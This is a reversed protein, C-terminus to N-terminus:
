QQLLQKKLSTVAQDQSPITYATYQSVPSSASHEPTRIGAPALSKQIKLLKWDGILHIHPPPPTRSPLAAPVHPQGSVDM